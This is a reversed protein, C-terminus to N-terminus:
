KAAARRARTLEVVLGETVMDIFEGPYGASALEWKFDNAFVARRIMGLRHQREYGAARAYTKELMRTIRNVTMSRRDSLVRDPPLDLVLQRVLEQVFERHKRGGFLQFM